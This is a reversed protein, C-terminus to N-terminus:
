IYKTCMILHRGAREISGDALTMSPLVPLAVRHVRPDLVHNFRDSRRHGQFFLHVLLGLLVVLKKTVWVVDSPVRVVAAAGGTLYTFFHACERPRPRSRWARSRRASRNM